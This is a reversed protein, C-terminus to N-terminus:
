KSSFMSAPISSSSGVFYDDYLHSVRRNTTAIIELLQTITEEHQAVKVKLQQLEKIVTEDVMDGGKMNSKNIVRIPRIVWIAIKWKQTTNRCFGVYQKRMKAMYGAMEMYKKSDSILKQLNTRCFKVRLHSSLCM